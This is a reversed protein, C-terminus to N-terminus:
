IFYKIFLFWYQYHGFVGCLDGVVDVLLKPSPFPQNLTPLPIVLRLNLLLVKFHPLPLLHLPLPLPRPLLSIPCPKLGEFGFFSSLNLFFYLPLTFLRPELLARATPLDPLLWPMRHPTSTALLLTRPLASTPSITTLTRAHLDPTVGCGRVGVGFGFIGTCGLGTVAALAGEVVM